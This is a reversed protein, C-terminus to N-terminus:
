YQIKEEQRQNGYTYGLCLNSVLSKITFLNEM